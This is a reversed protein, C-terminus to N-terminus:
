MQIIELDGLAITDPREPCRLDSKAIRHGTTHRDEVLATSLKMHLNLLMAEIDANLKSNSTPKSKCPLTSTTGSQFCESKTNMREVQLM